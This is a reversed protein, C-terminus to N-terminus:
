IHSLRKNRGAIHEVEGTYGTPYPSVSFSFTELQPLNKLSLPSSFWTIDFRFRFSLSFLLFGQMLYAFTVNFYFPLLQNSATLGM